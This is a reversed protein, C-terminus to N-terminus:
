APCCDTAPTTASRDLRLMGALNAIRERLGPGDSHRADALAIRHARERIEQPDDRAIMWSAFNIEHM